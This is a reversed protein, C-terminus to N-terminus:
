HPLSPAPNGHDPLRDGVVPDELLKAASAHTDDVLGLVGAEVSGNRQLEQGLLEEAIPDGELPEPPLGLGGGCEVVGVDAGDVVDVLVLPCGNM